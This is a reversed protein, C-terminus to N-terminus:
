NTLLKRLFVKFFYVCKPLVNMNSDKDLVVEDQCFQIIEDASPRVKTTEDVRVCACIEHHLVKDPVPVIVVEKVGPCNVLKQELWSPYLIFSGHMIADSSRGEVFLCGDERMYGVDGTRFWGDSLFNESGDGSIYGSTLIPSRVLIEGRSMFPLDKMAADVVRIKVQNCPLGVLLDQFHDMNSKDISLVCLVGAESSGYTISLSETLTGIARLAERRVPCGSVIVTLLKPVTRKQVCDIVRLLLDHSLIGVQIEERQLIESVLSARDPISDSEDLTVHTFGFRLYSTPYGGIWGLLNSNFVKSIKAAFKEANDDASKIVTLM